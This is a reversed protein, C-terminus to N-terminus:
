LRHRHRDRGDDIRVSTGHGALSLYINRYADRGNRAFGTRQRRKSASRPSGSMLSGQTSVAVGVCKEGFDGWAVLGLMTWVHRAATLINRLNPPHPRSRPIRRGASRRESMCGAVFKTVDRDEAAVIQSRRLHSFGLAAANPRQSISVPRNRPRRAANTLGMKSVKLPEAGLQPLNGPLLQLRDAELSGPHGYTIRRVRSLLQLM